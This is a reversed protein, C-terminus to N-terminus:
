PTVVTVEGPVLNVEIRAVEESGRFAVVTRVRESVSVVHLNGNELGQNDTSTTGHAGRTAMYETGGDADYVRLTTPPDGAGTWEFRMHCRRLVVIEYGTAPLEDVKPKHWDSMIDESTVSFLTHLRSVNTLEFYGDDDTIASGATDSTRGTPSHKVVLMTMVQVGPVGTGDLAVVRGRMKPLAADEGVEILLDSTGAAVPGSDIAILTEPHWARLEYTRNVLGKLEFVGADDATAGGADGGALGSEHSREGEMRYAFFTPDLLRVRWGSGPTGDAMVVKGRISLSEDGLVLRVPAPPEEAIATRGFEELVAPQYGPKSGVLPAAHNVDNLLVVKFAGLEDTRSYNGDLRVQGDAVPEGTPYVLTGTVALFEPDSPAVVRSPVLEVLLDSTSTLPVPVGLADFGFCSTQILAGPVAPLDALEFAGDTDSETKWEIDESLDLPYPFERLTDVTVVLQLRTKEVGIQTGAEVTRGALAVRPAAVILHERGLNREMVVTRRVAVHTGPGLVLDGGPTDLLLEFSGDGTSEALVKEPEDRLVVAAGLLPAGTLDLVRGRIRFPGEEESNASGQGEATTGTAVVDPAAEPTRETEDETDLETLPEESDQALVDSGRTLGSDGEDAQLERFALWAGLALTLVLLVLLGPHRM